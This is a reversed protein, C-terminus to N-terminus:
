SDPSGIIKTPTPTWGSLKISLPDVLDNPYNPDLIQDWNQSDRVSWVPGQGIMNSM